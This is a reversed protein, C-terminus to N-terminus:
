SARCAYRCIIDYFIFSSRQTNSLINCKYQNAILQVICLMTTYMGIDCLINDTVDSDLLKAISEWCHLVTDEEYFHDECGYGCLELEPGIYNM